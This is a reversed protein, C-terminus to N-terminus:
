EGSGMRAQRWTQCLKAALELLAEDRPEAAIEVSAWGSGAAAAAAKSIAVLSLRSRYAADTLAAFTSAARPSHLLVITGDAATGPLAPAVRAVYVVRRVIQLSDREIPIFHQGCLHLVREAGAAGVMELAAAGDAAGIKVNAFGAERAAAATAAGVAFCPLDLFAGAAPGACRPANASTLLVADIEAPDPTEWDLPEITFLPAVLPELGLARARAATADAGPQPRLILLDAAM